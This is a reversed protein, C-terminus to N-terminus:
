RRLIAAARFCSGFGCGSLRWSDSHRATGTALSFALSAPLFSTPYLVAAIITATVILLARGTEIAAYPVHSRSLQALTLTTRLLAFAAIYVAVALMMESMRGASIFPASVMSAVLAACTGGASLVLARGVQRPRMKGAGAETRLLYVRVWNSSGMELIEGVTLISKM